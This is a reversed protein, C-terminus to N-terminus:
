KVEMPKAKRLAKAWAARRKQNLEEVVRNAEAEWHKNHLKVGTVKSWHLYTQLVKRPTTQPHYDHRATLNMAAAYSTALEAAAFKDIQNTM